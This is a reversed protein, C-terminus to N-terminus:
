IWRPALGMHRLMFIKNLKLGGAVSSSTRAAARCNTRFILPNLLGDLTL